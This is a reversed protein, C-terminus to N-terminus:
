PGDVPRHWYYGTLYVHLWTEPADYLNRLRVTNETCAHVSLETPQLALSSSVTASGSWPYQPDYLALAAPQGPRDSSVVFNYARPQPATVLLTLPTRGRLVLQADPSTRAGFRQPRPSIAVYGGEPFDAKPGGEVAGPGPLFYGALDLVLHVGSSSSQTFTLSGDSGLRVVRETQMTQPTSRNGLFRIHTTAESGDGDSISLLGTAHASLVAINLVVASAGGAPIGGRGPLALTIKGGPGLPSAARTDLIRSTRAAFTGPLTPPGALYFGFVEVMLHLARTANNRITVGGDAGLRVTLQQQITGGGTLSMTARRDWTTGGPYVSLSGSPANGAVTVELVAASVPGSPHARSVDFTVAQGAAVAGLRGGIGSRTDLVRVANGDVPEFTGPSQVAVAAPAPSPAAVLLGPILSCGLLLRFIKGM